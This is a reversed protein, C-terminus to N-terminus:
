KLPTRAITVTYTENVVYSDIKDSPLALCFTHGEGKFVLERILPEMTFCKIETLVMPISTLTTLSM